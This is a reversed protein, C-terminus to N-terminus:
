LSSWDALPSEYGNEGGWILLESGTWSAEAMGRSAIPANPITGWEGTAPTYTFGDKVARDNNRADWGGWVLLQTGTWASSSWYRNTAPGLDTRTAVTVLSSPEPGPAFSPDEPIEAESLERAGNRRFPRPM